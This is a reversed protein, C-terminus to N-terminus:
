WANKRFWDDWSKLAGDTAKIDKPVGDAIGDVVNKTTQCGALFVVSCFLGILFMIGIRSKM